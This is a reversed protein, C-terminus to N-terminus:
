VGEPGRRKGRVLTDIQRQIHPSFYGAYREWLEPRRWDEASVLGRCAAAGCECKFNDCAHGLTNATSMAYDYTIEDGPRLDRLAVLTTADLLGCTPECGHNVFDPLERLNRADPIQFLDEAVQLSFHQEEETCKALRDAHVVKGAWSLVATGQPIPACTFIG